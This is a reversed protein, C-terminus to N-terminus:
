ERHFTPSSIVSMGDDNKITTASPCSIINPPVWASGSRSTNRLLRIKNSRKARRRKRVPDLGEVETSVLRVFEVWRKKRLRVTSGSDCVVFVMYEELALSSSNRQDITMESTRCALIAYSFLGDSGKVFVFDLAKLEDISQFTQEPTVGSEIRMHSPCRVTAGLSYDSRFGKGTYTGFTGPPLSAFAVKKSTLKLKINTADDLSQFGNGKRHMTAKYTYDGGDLSIVMKVNAHQLLSSTTPPNDSARRKSESKLGLLNSANNRRSELAHLKMAMEHAMDAIIPSIGPNTSRSRSSSLHNFERMIKKVGNSDSSM